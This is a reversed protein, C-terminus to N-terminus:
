YLYLICKFFCLYHLTFVTTFKDLEIQLLIIILAATRLGKQSPFRKKLHLVQTVIVGRTQITILEVLSRHEGRLSNGKCILLRFFYFWCRLKLQVQSWAHKNVVHQKNDLHSCTFPLQWSRRRFACTQVKLLQQQQILEASKKGVVGQTSSTPPLLSSKSLPLSIPTSQHRLGFRM